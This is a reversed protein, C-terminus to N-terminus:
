KIYLSTADLAYGIADQGKVVLSGSYPDLGYPSGASLGSFGTAIGGAVCVSIDQGDTKTELAIGIPNALSGEFNVVQAKSTNGEIYKSLGYIFFGGATSDYGIVPVSSNYGMSAKFLSDSYSLSSGDSWIDFSGVGQFHGSPNTALLVIYGTDPNAALRMQNMPYESIAARSVTTATTSTVSLGYLLGTDNTRDGDDYGAIIVEDTLPNYAASEIRLGFGSGTDFTKVTSPTTISATSGSITTMFYHVKSDSVNVYLCLTKGTGSCYVPTPFQANTNGLFVTRAGLSLSTGSIAGVQVVSEYVGASNNYAYMLLFKGQATDYSTRIATCQDISGASSFNVRPGWTISTGSITGLSYGGSGYTSTYLGTWLVKGSPGVTLSHSSDSTPAFFATSVPTGFTVTGGSVSAVVTKYTGSDEWDKYFLVHKNTGPDYCHAIISYEGGLSSEAILASEVSSVDGESNLGVVDGTSISGSATFTQSGGGAAIGTLGSGDGTYSTATVTGINTLNRSNDIVTTGNVQIAM